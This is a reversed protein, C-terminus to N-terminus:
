VYEDVAGQIGDFRAVADEKGFSAAATKEPAIFTVAADPCVKLEPQIRPKGQHLEKVSRMYDPARSGTAAPREYATEVPSAAGNKGPSTEAGHGLPPRATQDFLQFILSRHKKQQLLEQSKGRGPLDKRERDVSKMLEFAGHHPDPLVFESFQSKVLERLVAAHGSGGEFLFETLGETNGRSAIQKIEFEGGGLGHKAFGAIGASLDGFM